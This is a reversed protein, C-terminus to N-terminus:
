VPPRVPRPAILKAILQLAFVLCAFVLLYANVIWHSALVSIGLEKQIVPLAVGVVTEDFLVLGLGGALATLLWWKRNEDTILTM